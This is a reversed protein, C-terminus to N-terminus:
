FCLQFLLLLLIFLDFTKEEFFSGVDDMFHKILLLISNKVVIVMIAHFLVSEQSDV